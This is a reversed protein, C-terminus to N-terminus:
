VETGARGPSGAPTEGALEQALRRQKRLRQALVERIACCAETIEPFSLRYFVERGDRRSEVLTTHRMVALHQSLNAKSIRLRALLESAPKEGSALLDLIEIRRPHGLVRCIEAQLRYIQQQEAASTKKTKAEPM